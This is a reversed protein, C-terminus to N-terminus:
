LKGFVKDVAEKIIDRNTNIKAIMANKLAPRPKVRKTGLELNRGYNQSDRYGFAIQSGTQVEFGASKRLTGSVNAPAQGPASARYRRGKYRYVRGTKTEKLFSRSLEELLVKGVAFLGKEVQFQTRKDSQMLNSLIKQTATDAYIRM